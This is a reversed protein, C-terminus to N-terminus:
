TLHTNTVALMYAAIVQSRIIWDHAFAQFRSQAAFDAHFQKAITVPELTDTGCKEPYWVVAGDDGADKGWQLMRLEVALLTHVWGTCSEIAYGNCLM